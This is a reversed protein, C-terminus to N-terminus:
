GWPFHVSDQPYRVRAHTHSDRMGESRRAWSGKPSKSFFSILWIWWCSFIGSSLWCNPVWVYSCCTTSNLLSPSLLLKPPDRQASGRPIARRREVHPGDPHAVYSCFTGPVNVRCGGVRLPAPQAGAAVPTHAAGAASCRPATSGHCPGHEPREQCTALSRGHLACWSVGSAAQQASAAPATQPHTRGPKSSSSLELDTSAPARGLGFGLRSSHCAQKRM